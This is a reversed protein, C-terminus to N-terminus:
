RSLALKAKDQWKKNLNLKKLKIIKKKVIRIYDKSDTKDTQFSRNISGAIIDALQILNDRKSDQVGFSAIKRTRTNLEKRLYTKVHLKYQKGYKGDMKVKANALPMIALLEKTAWNYLKEKDVFFRFLNPYDAKNIYVAYIRFDYQMVINLLEIIIDKRIKAFKFEHDDRWGLHRRYASIADNVSTASEPNIFVAAALIFNSSSINQKFGPDGSDDIFILQGSKEM